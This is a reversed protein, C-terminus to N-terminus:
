VVSKRDPRMPSAWLVFHEKETLEKKSSNPFYHSDIDDQLAKKLEDIKKNLDEDTM